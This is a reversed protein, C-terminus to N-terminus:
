YLWWAPVICRSESLGLAVQFGRRCAVQGHFLDSEAVIVIAEAAM